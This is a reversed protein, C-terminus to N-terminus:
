RNLLRSVVELLDKNAFPKAIYEDAGLEFSLRRDADQGKATLMLVKPQPITTDDRLAKLVDFGNVDQMMADLVVLDPHASRLIELARRGDTAFELRYGEREFLFKLAEVIIPEDEAILIRHPLCLEERFYAMRCHETQGYRYDSM